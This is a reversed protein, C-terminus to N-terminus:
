RIVHPRHAGLSPPRYPRSSPRVDRDKIVLSWAPWRFTRHHARQTAVYSHPVRQHGCRRAPSDTEPTRPFTRGVLDEDLRSQAAPEEQAQQRYGRPIPLRALTPSRENFTLSSSRSWQMGRGFPLRTRRNALMTASIPCGSGVDPRRLVATPESLKAALVGVTQDSVDSGVLCCGRRRYQRSNHRDTPDSHLNM